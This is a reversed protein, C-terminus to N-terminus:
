QKLGAATAVGHLVRGVAAAAVVPYTLLFTVFCL